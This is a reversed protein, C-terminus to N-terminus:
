LVSSSKRGWVRKRMTYETLSVVGATYLAFLVTYKAIGAPKWLFGHGPDFTLCAFYFGAFIVAAALREWFTLRPFFLNAYAIVTLLLSSWGLTGKVMFDYILGTCFGACLSLLESDRWGLSLIWALFFVPGASRMKLLNSLILQLGLVVPFQEV